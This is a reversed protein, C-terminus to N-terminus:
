AEGTDGGAPPRISIEIMLRDFYFYFGFTNRLKGPASEFKVPARQLEDYIKLVSAKDPQYFGIHFNEPYNVEGTKNLKSSWFILVFDNEDTLVAVANRRNEICTLGLYNEFLRVAEAVDTVVLNMHNIKMARSNLDHLLIVPM